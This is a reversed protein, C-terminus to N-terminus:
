FLMNWGGAARGGWDRQVGEMAREKLIAIWLQCAILKTKTEPTNCKNIVKQENTRDFLFYFEIKTIIAIFPKVTLKPM